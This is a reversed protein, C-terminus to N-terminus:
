AIRTLQNGSISEVIRILEQPAIPKLRYIVNIGQYEAEADPYGSLVFVPLTPFRSRLEAVFEPGNMGPMLHDTIVLGVQKALDLHSLHHLALKANKAVMVQHGAHTLIAKRTAAQVEDDDVLLIKLPMM